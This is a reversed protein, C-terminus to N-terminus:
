SKWFPKNAERIAHERSIGIDKLQYTSLQGLKKRQSSREKWDQTLRCIPTLYARLKSFLIAKLESTTPKNPKSLLTNNSLYQM